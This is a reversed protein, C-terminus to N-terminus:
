PGNAGESGLAVSGALKQVPKQANTGLAFENAKPESDSCSRPDRQRHVSNIEEM